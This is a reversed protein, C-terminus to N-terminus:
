QSGAVRTFCDMAPALQLAHIAESRERNHPKDCGSM